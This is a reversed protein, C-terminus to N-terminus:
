PVINKNIDNREAGGIVWRLAAAWAVAEIAKKEGTDMQENLDKSAGELGELRGQWYRLESKIDAESKM